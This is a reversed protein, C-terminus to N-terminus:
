DCETGSSVCLLTDLAVKSSNAIPICLHDLIDTVANLLLCNLPLTDGAGVPGMRLGDALLVSAVKSACGIGVRLIMRATGEGSGM